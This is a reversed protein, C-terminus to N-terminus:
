ISCPNVSIQVARFTNHLTLVAIVSGRRWPHQQLWELTAPMASSGAWALVEAFCSLLPCLFCGWISRMKGPLLPLFGEWLPQSYLSLCLKQQHLQLSRSCMELEKQCCVSQTRRCSFCDWEAVEWRGLINLHMLKLVNRRSEQCHFREHTLM